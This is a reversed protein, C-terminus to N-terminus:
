LCIMCYFASRNSDSMWDCFPETKHDIAETSFSVSQNLCMSSCSECFVDECTAKYDQDEQKDMDTM